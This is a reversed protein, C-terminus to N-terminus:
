SELTEKLVKEVGSVYQEISFCKLVRERANNGMESRLAENGLLELISHALARTDGHPVLFGTKGGKILENLGCVNFAVVPKGLLMAELVVRPMGEAESTLVLVDVMNILELPEAQFGTFITDRELDLQRALRILGEKEPGDGVIFFKVSRASNQRVLSAAQLFYRHGKRKLLSSVIGIALGDEPVGWGRRTEKVNGKLEQNGDIGNYVVDIKNGELGQGEYYAKDYQSVCIFRDVYSNATKVEWPLLDRILRIHSVAQVEAERAALIGELNSSPQNNMYVLDFNEDRIIKAIRKAQPRNRILLNWYFVFRKRISPSFFLLARGVEKGVKYGLSDPPGELIIVHVGIRELEDKITSSLGKKYNHYFLATFELSERDIRKLLELLSNTGGGWEKGTDLILVRKAM